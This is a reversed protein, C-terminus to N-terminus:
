LLIANIIYINEYVETYKKTKNIRLATSLFPIIFQELRFAKESTTKSNM